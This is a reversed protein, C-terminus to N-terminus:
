CIKTLPLKALHSRKPWFLNEALIVLPKLGFSVLFLKSRESFVPSPRPRPRARKLKRSLPRMFHLSLPPPSLPSLPSLSLPILLSISLPVSTFPSLPSPTLPYRVFPSLSIQMDYDVALQTM